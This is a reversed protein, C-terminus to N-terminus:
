LKLLHRPATTLRQAGDSGVLVVDEIRVGGLGPVYVGPEVTITMRDRLTGTSSAAMFPTEHLGLGVGHGTGHEFHQGHGAASILQRCARDVAATQTGAVAARVGAEQARHVLDHIGALMPDVAGLGVTRTMDAHYGGVLAGFDMTIMDGAALPRAGPDHHPRAGNPGAAVIPPFAQGEAGLDIMDAVLRRAVQVETLGPRLWGVALEFTEATLECARRLLALEGDDKVQRLGAVLGSSPQMQSCVALQTLEQVVTWTLHDAEVALPSTAPHHQGLWGWTRDTIITWGPAEEAARETYRGDTVLVAEGELPVYVQGASGSFGTLWRVNTHDSVLLAALGEEGMLARLRDLRSGAPPDATQM